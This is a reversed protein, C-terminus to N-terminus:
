GVKGVVAEDRRTIKCSQELQRAVPFAPVPMLMMLLRYAALRRRAKITERITKWTRQWSHMSNVGILYPKCWRSERGPVAAKPPFHALTAPPGRLPIISFTM